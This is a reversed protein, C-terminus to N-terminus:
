GKNLYLEVNGHLKTFLSLVLSINFYEAQTFKTLIRKKDVTLIRSYFQKFGGNRIDM